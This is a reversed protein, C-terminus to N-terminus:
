QLQQDKIIDHQMITEQHGIDHIYNTRDYTEKTIMIDINKYEKGVKKTILNDIHNWREHNEKIRWVCIM